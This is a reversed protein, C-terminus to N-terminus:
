IKLLPLSVVHRLNLDLGEYGKFVGNGIIQVNQAQPLRAGNNRSLISRPDTVQEKGASHVNFLDEDWIAALEELALPDIGQQKRFVLVSNDYLAQRLVSVDEPSFSHPDIPSQTNLVVEAGTLTDKRLEPSLPQITIIPSTPLTASPMKIASITQYSFTGERTVQHPRLVSSLLCPTLYRSGGSRCQRFDGSHLDLTLPTLSSKIMPLAELLFITFEPFLTLLQFTLMEQDNM